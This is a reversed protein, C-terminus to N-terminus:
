SFMLSFTSIVIFLLIRQAGSEKLVRSRLADNDAEARALERRWAAERRELLAKDRVLAANEAETGSAAKSYQIFVCYFCVFFAIKSTLFSIQPCPHCVFRQRAELQRRADRERALNARCEALERELAKREALWARRESELQTGCVGYSFRCQGNAIQCDRRRPAAACSVRATREAAQATSDATAALAVLDAVTACM